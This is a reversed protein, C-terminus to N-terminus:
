EDLPSIAAALYDLSRAWAISQLQQIATMAPIHAGRYRDQVRELLSPPPEPLGADRAIRIFAARVLPWGDDSGNKNETDQVAIEQIDLSYVLGQSAPPSGKDVAIVLRPQEIALPTGAKRLRYTTAEHGREPSDNHQVLLIGRAELRKVGLVAGAKSVGAGRDLRRGDRTVIGRVIQSLSIDDAAKKFGYTRRIIYLLVRVEVDTLEALLVDFFDDPVPTYNPDQFGDWGAVPAPLDPM